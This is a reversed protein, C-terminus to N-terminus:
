LARRVLILSDGDSLDRVDKILWAHGSDPYEDEEYADIHLFTGEVTIVSGVAITAARDTVTAYVVEDNVSLELDTGMEQLGQGFNGWAHGGQDGLWDGPLRSNRDAHCGSAHVLARNGSRPSPHVISGNVLFGEDPLVSGATPQGPALEFARVWAWISGDWSALDDMVPPHWM